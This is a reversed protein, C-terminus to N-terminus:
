WIGASYSEKEADPDRGSARRVADGVILCTTGLGQREHHQQLRRRVDKLAGFDIKINVVDIITICEMRVDRFALLNALYASQRHLRKRHDDMFISHKLAPTDIGDSEVM